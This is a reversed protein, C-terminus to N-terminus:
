SNFIRDLLSPLLGETRSCSTSAHRSTARGASRAGILPGAPAVDARCRAVQIAMLNNAKLTKNRAATGPSAQLRSQSGRQRDHLVMCAARCFWGRATARVRAHPPQRGLRRTERFRRGRYGEGLTHHQQFRHRWLAFSLDAWSFVPARFKRRGFSSARTLVTRWVGHLQSGPRHHNAEM